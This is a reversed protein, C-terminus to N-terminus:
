DGNRNQDNSGVIDLLSEMMDDVTAIVVLNAEYAAKAQALTATERVPDINPEPVIRVTAKVGGSSGLTTQEVRRPVHNTSSANAINNAAALMRLGEAALGSRTIDFAADLLAASWRHLRACVRAHDRVALSLLETLKRADAFKGGAISSNRAINWSDSTESCPQDAAVSSAGM